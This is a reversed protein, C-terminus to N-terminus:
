SPGVRATQGLADGALLALLLLSMTTAAFKSLRKMVNWRSSKLIALSVLARRVAVRATSPMRFFLVSSVRPGDAVRAAVNLLVLSRHPARKRRFYLSTM